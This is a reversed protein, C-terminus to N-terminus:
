GHETHTHGGNSWLPTHSTSHVGCVGNIFFSTSSTLHPVRMSPLPFSKYGGRQWIHTLDGAMRSYGERQWGHQTYAHGGNLWGYGNGVDIQTKRFKIDMYKLLIFFIGIINLFLKIDLRFCM